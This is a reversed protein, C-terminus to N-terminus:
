NSGEYQGNKSHKCTRTRLCRLPVSFFLEFVDSFLSIRSRRCRPDMVWRSYQIYLMKVAYAPELYFVSNHLQFHTLFVM